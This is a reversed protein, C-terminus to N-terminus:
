ISTRPQQSVQKSTRGFRREVSKFSSITEDLDEKTFDPWHKDLVRIESYASQYMLFNSLRREGSTRIILDPDTLPFTELESNFLEEDIEELKLIGLKVKQAISKSARVIDSRGGYSLALNLTMSKNNKTIKKTDAILEQIDLPLKTLDGVTKLKIDNDILLKREKILFKKLIKMLVGVEEKPRNWNESSFAFLSLSSLNLERCHTVIDKVVKMGRVHGYLRNHGKSKAWRGNGDMIIALHNLPNAQM